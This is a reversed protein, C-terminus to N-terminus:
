DAILEADLEDSKAAKPSKPKPPAMEVLETHEQCDECWTVDFDRPTEDFAEELVQGTNPRVWHMRQVNCGGCVTCHTTTLIARDTEQKTPM